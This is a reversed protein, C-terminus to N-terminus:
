TMHADHGCAHMVDVENGKDDSTRANSAYPLGTQEKVPLADLDTRLLITPGAGNRLVGVVGHGGVNTTVDFGAEKLEAAIRASTKEEHFSLEPHAHLDKYLQDLHPYDDSIRAQVSERLATSVEAANQFRSPFVILALILPALSFIKKM